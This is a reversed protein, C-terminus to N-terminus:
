FSCMSTKSGCGARLCLIEAKLLFTDSQSCNKFCSAAANFCLCENGPGVSNICYEIASLCSKGDCQPTPTCVESRFWVFSYSLTAAVESTFQPYPQSSNSCLILLNMNRVIGDIPTGNTATVLVGSDTGNFYDSYQVSAFSGLSASDGPWEQCAAAHACNAVLPGSTQVAQCMNFFFNFPLMGNVCQPLSCPSGAPLQFDNPSKLSSLDHKATGCRTSQQKTHRQTNTALANGLLIAFAVFTIM